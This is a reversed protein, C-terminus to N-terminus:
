KQFLTRIRSSDLFIETSLKQSRGDATMSHKTKSEKQFVKERQRLM